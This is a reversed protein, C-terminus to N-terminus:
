AGGGGQILRRRLWGSFWDMAMVMLVILVIYYTVEEWDKQTIMAQTLLLGIGGGGTIAGIITASRTNSELYYLVQSLFVPTVQPIVGFRYRQLPPKAGTSTIGEIQKNDVNELAESFMKGFSGTDTILIALAGTLPPGPPGFARALVITWILGDVGGRVFDFVRRFTFRVTRLPPSFNKAAMFALPLAVMAAGFTGLFAMLVTEFLAWVVQGHQWMKNHWIDSIIRGLNAPDSAVLGVLEGGLSKGHFDSDLTFFFLEWGTFYRFVEARAKTVTLRGADTTIAVRNKSANIWDPVEDTPLTLAVGSQSPVATILGYGPVEYTVRDKGFTVLHGGELDILTEAGGLTVWDPATGDPYSGKREGEIAVSVEGSRNQRTVHTKYSYTDAVLARANDVSARDTLGPVDFAFFAYTLYALIVAPIAFATLRKRAFLRDAEGRLTTIDTASMTM